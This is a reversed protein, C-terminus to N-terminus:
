QQMLLEKLFVQLNMLELHRGEDKAHDELAAATATGLDNTVSTGLDYHTSAAATGDATHGDTCSLVVVLNAATRLVLSLLHEEVLNTDQLEADVDHLHHLITVAVLTTHVLQVDHLLHVKPNQKFDLCSEGLAIGIVAIGPHEDVDQITTYDTTAVIGMLDRRQVLRNCYRLPDVFCGPGAQAVADISRRHGEQHNDLGVHDCAKLLEERRDHHVLHWCSRAAVLGLRDM